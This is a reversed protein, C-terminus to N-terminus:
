IKAQHKFGSIYSFIRKSFIEGDGNHFNVKIPLYYLPLDEFLHRKDCMKFRMMDKESTVLVKNRSYVDEFAGLIKDIDKETFQHHDFFSLVTINSCMQRLYDVMPYNNAIGTFVIIHTYHDKPQIKNSNFVPCLKGYNIRSFLLLQTKKLSLEESIRRRTIPSLIAPTKTVIVIDARKSGCGSERLRGSPFLYDNCYLNYFDTLLINIGPKIYRHQYADDLIIVDLDPVKILLEEVGHNRDEDVAVTIDPFKTSYQMSEDGITLANSDKHAILFGKTKRGYGRSLSAIKYRDKLLEILYETQPTKGTGGLSLNGVSIIPLPHEKQELIKLDFLLNRISIVLGYIIAFPLLLLGQLSM